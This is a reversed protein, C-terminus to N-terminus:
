SAYMLWGLTMALIFYVLLTILTVIFTYVGERIKKIYILYAPYGMVLVGSIAASIVLLILWMGFFVVEPFNKYYFVGEMGLIFSAILMIYIFELTGAGIAIETMKKTSIEEEKKRFWM